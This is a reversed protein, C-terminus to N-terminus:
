EQRLNRITYTYPDKTIMAPAAPRPESRTALTDATLDTLPRPASFFLSTLIRSM